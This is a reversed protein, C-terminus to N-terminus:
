QLNFLRTYYPLVEYNKGSFRYTFQTPKQMYVRNLFGWSQSVYKNSQNNGLQSTLENIGWPLNQGSKFDISSTASDLETVTNLTSLDLSTNSTGSPQTTKLKPLSGQDILIFNDNCRFLTKNEILLEIDPFSKRSTNIYGVGLINKGDIYYDKNYAVNTSNLKTLNNELLFHGSFGISKIRYRGVGYVMLDTSSVASEFYLKLQISSTFGSHIPLGMHFRAYPDIFSIFLPANPTFSAQKYADPDLYQTLFHNMSILSDTIMHNGNIVITARIKNQDLKTSPSIFLYKLTFNTVTDLDILVENVGTSGIKHSALQLIDM